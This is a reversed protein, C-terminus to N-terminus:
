RRAGPELRIEDGQRRANVGALTALTRVMAEGRSTALVGSFPKAAVSTEVRVQQGSVRTVEAAVLGLPMAEFSLPGNRRGEKVTQTSSALTLRGDALGTAVHGAVVRTAGGGNPARVEVVGESVSVRVMGNGSVVEFRTGVDRIEYGQARVLMTRAPDHRVAFEARGTLALQSRNGSRAALSSGPALTIRADAISVDLENSGARYTAPAPVDAIPTWEWTTLILGVALGAAVMGGGVMKRSWRHHTPAVREPTSLLRHLAPTHRDIEADLLAIDDFADRHRPDAALWAEFALWDMDEAAQCSHWRAAAELVEKDHMMEDDTGM